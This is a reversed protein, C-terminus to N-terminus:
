NQPMDEPPVDAPPSYVPGDGTPTPPPAMEPGEGDAVRVLTMVRGTGVPWLVLTDNALTPLLQEADFESRIALTDGHFDYVAMITSAPGLTRPRYIRLTSDASFTYRQGSRSFPLDPEDVVEWTGVIDTTSDPVEETEGNGCAAVLLAALLLLALKPGNM